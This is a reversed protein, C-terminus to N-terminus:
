PPRLGCYQRCLSETEKKIRKVESFWWEVEPRSVSPKKTRSLFEVFGATVDLRYVIIRLVRIYGQLLLDLEIQEQKNQLSLRSQALTKIRATALKFTNRLAHAERMIEVHNLEGIPIAITDISYVSGLRLEGEQPLAGAAQQQGGVALLGVLLVRCLWKM